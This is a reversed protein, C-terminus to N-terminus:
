VAVGVVQCFDEHLYGENDQTVDTQKLWSARTLWEKKPEDSSWPNFVPKIGQRLSLM